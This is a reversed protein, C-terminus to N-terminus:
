AAEVMVYEPLRGDNAAPSPDADQAPESFVFTLEFRDAVDRALVIERLKRETFAAEAEPHLALDFRMRGDLTYMSLRGDKVSLTHRDFYVPATDTFNLRPLGKDGLRSLNFPSDPHQFVQRSTRSVSYIANCVMQSGMNPFKERLMKYALHHLTVRNWVRTQQVIPALANCAQAFAAQLALLRATQEPTADLPIRLYSNM